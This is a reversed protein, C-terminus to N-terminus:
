EDGSTGGNSEVRADLDELAARTRGRRTDSRHWRQVFVHVHRRWPQRPPRSAGHRRTAGNSAPSSLSPERHQPVARRSYATEREPAPSCMLTASLRRSRFVSSAFAGTTTRNTRCRSRAREGAASSPTAHSSVSSACTPLPLPPRAALRLGLNGAPPPRPRPRPPAPPPCAAPPAGRLRALRRRRPSAM